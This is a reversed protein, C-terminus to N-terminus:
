QQKYVQVWKLLLNKAGGAQKGGKQSKDDYGLGISIQYHLILTWILGLILKLNGSEIDGAGPPFLITTLIAAVM